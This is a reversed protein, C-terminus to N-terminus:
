RLPTRYVENGSGDTVSVYLGEIESPKKNRAWDYAAQIAAAKVADISALKHGDPDAIKKGNSLNFFYVAM